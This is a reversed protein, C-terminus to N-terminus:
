ASMVWGTYKSVKQCDKRSATSLVTSTMATPYGKPYKIALSPGFHFFLVMSSNIIGKQVLEKIRSYPHIMM